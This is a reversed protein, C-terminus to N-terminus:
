EKEAVLAPVPQLYEVPLLIAEAQPELSQLFVLKGPRLFRFLYDFDAFTFQMLEEIADVEPMRM